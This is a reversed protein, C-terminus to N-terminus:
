MSQEDSDGSDQAYDLGEVFPSTVALTLSNERPHVAVALIKM